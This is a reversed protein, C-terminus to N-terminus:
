QLSAHLEELKRRTREDAPTFATIRTGLRQGLWLYWVCLISPIAYRFFTM